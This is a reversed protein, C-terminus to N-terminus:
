QPKTGLLSTADEGGLHEKGEYSLVTDVEKNTPSSVDLQIQDPLKQNLGKIYIIM